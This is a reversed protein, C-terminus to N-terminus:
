KRSVNCTRQRVYKALGKSRPKEWVFPFDGLYASYWFAFWATWHIKQSWVCSLGLTMRWRISKYFRQLCFWHMETQHSVYGSCIWGNILIKLCMLLHGRPRRNYLLENQEPICLSFKSRHNLVFPFSFCIFFKFVHGAHSYNIWAM